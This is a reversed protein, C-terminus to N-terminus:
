GPILWGLERLIIPLPQRTRNRLARAIYFESDDMTWGHLLKRAKKTDFYQSVATRFARGEKELKNLITVAQERNVQQLANVACCAIKVNPHRACKELLRVAENNGILGFLYIIEECVQLSANGLGKKLTFLSKAGFLIALARASQMKVYDNNSQTFRFRLEEFSMRLILPDVRRSQRRKRKKLAGANKVKVTLNVEKTLAKTIKVLWAKIKRETPKKIAVGTVDPSKKLYNYARIVENFKYLNGYGGNMDPHYMRVAKRFAKKIEDLSAGPPLNLSRYYRNM